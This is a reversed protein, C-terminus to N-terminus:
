AIAGALVAFIVADAMVHAVIPAALGGSRLALGGIMLGYIGALGMGVAGSPFGAYHAAGFSAAQLSVAVLPSTFTLLWRQLIGRWVVEELIANVVSFAAGAAILGALPWVPLMARLRSLDPQFLLVWGLLATGAVVAVLAIWGAESRGLRGRDVTRLLDRGFGSAFGLALAILIPVLAYVPWFALVRPFLAFALLGGALARAPRSFAGDGPLPKMCSLLMLIGLVGLITPAIVPRLAHFALAVLTALNGPAMRSKAPPAITEARM